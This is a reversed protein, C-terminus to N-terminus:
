ALLMFAGVVGSLVAASIYTAGPSALKSGPNSPTFTTSPSPPTAGAGGAVTLDTSMSAIEEHGMFIRANASYKKIIEQKPIRLRWTNKKYANFVGKVEFIRDNKHLSGWAGIKVRADWNDLVYGKNRRQINEGQSLYVNLKVM